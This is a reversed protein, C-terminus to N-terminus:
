NLCGAGNTYFYDPGFSGDSFRYHYYCKWLHTSSDYTSTTYFRQGSECKGNVVKYNEGVCTCTGYRNAENQGNAVVDAQAQNQADTKSITSSYRNAPVVYTYRSGVFGDGCATTYTGSAIDNYYTCVLNADAISQGNADMYDRANKNAIVKSETSKFLGLPIAFTYSGSTAGQPCNKTYVRSQADSQYTCVANANAAAQGNVDIEANAKATADDQSVNSSYKGASVIYNYSGPVGDITCDNKSIVRNVQANLYNCTVNANATLQGNADIDATAKANANDQSVTSSYKGAVVTYVYTGPTGNISCDNKSITRSAQVNYYTCTANANATIQGNADIDATAKANADDQSVTSSYKGAVVTYVYVGPTGNITCDNKSITRSAQVNYYTCTANANAYAPGNADLDAAAKVNADEKSITSTYKGTGVVYLVTGSNGGPGCNSRTFNRSMEDNAFVPNLVCSAHASAYIPGNVNLDNLALADATAQDAATFKGAEITYLVTGGSYGPDCIRTFSKSMQTSSYVTPVIVPQAIGAYNYAFNKTINKNQDLINLLRNFSDYEFYSSQNKPDTSAILGIHPAYVFTGIQTSNLSINNKLPGLFADLQEKSPWTNSFSKLASEGLVSEIQAYTSNKIEAVPYQHNYSWVYTTPANGGVTVESVNGHDSYKSFSVKERYHPDMSYSTVAGSVPLIGLTRNSFKFDDIKIPDTSELQFVKEILGQGGSLYQTVGGNLIKSTGNESQYTVEEIPVGVQNASVMDDIFATGVAYDIPHTTLKTITKGSSNVNSSRTPRMNLPNDYFISTINEIKNGDNNYDRDTITTLNFSGASLSYTTQNYDSTSVLGSPGDCVDPYYMRRYFNTVPESGTSYLSYNYLREKKLTYTGVTKDYAYYSESAKDMGGIINDIYERGGPVNPNYISNAGSTSGLSRHYITKGNNEDNTGTVTKTVEDYFITAGEFSVQPVYGQGVYVIYEDVFKLCICPAEKCTSDAVWIKYTMSTENFDVDSRLFNGIGEGNKGKYSYKEISSVTNDKEYNTIQNVRIGGGSKLQSQSSNILGTLSFTINSPANDDITLVVQYQHDSSFTFGTTITFDKTIDGQHEWIGLNVGTTVDKLIAKQAVDFAGPNTHASFKLSVTGTSSVVTSPWVIDQTITKPKNKGIGILQVNTISSTVTNVVDSKYKNPEFNYITYGGTPYTIKQLMGASTYEDNASRDAAGIPLNSYWQLLFTNKSAVNPLYDQARGNYFGWYDQASSITSPLAVNNYDFTHVEGSTGNKDVRKINNLKLRYDYQGVPNQTTFYDHGLEYKQIESYVNNSLSYIIINDLMAAPYDKRGNNSNFEIKGNKFFIEKLVPETTSNYSVSQSIGKDIFKPVDSTKGGMYFTRNFTRQVFWEPQVSNGSPLVTSVPQIEYSFIISDQRNASLIKSLFWSQTYRRLAAPIKPDDDNAYNQKQEFFYKVGRDDTMIYNNNVDSAGPTRYIKYPQFPITEFNQTSKKYIFKGSGNPLTYSFFDPSPDKSLDAYNRMVALDTTHALDNATTPDTIWGGNQIEDPIGRVQRSIVGGANLSWGLGINTAVQGVKIGGAFYSLSIPLTLTGSNIQYLPISIEPKGTSANVAHDGYRNFEAAIPTLPVISPAKYQAHVSTFLICLFVTCLIIFSRM